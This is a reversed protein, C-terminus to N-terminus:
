NILVISTRKMPVRLGGQRSRGVDIEHIPNSDMQKGLFTYGSRKAKFRCKLYLQQLSRKEPVRLRLFYNYRNRM